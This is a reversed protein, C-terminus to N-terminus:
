VFPTRKRFNKFGAISRKQREIADAYQQTVQGSGQCAGCNHQPLTGTFEQASVTFPCWPLSCSRTDFLRVGLNIYNKTNSNPCVKKGLCIPCPVM